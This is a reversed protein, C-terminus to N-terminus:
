VGLYAARVGDDALLEASGASMAIRGTELVYGRDAIELAENVNQEVLLVTTGAARIRTIAELVTEVLLPALGLSPEDLMLLRPRSMLARGIAVMQQEGGSLTGCLQDRREALLPFLELAEALAAEQEARARPTYAGLDLTEAVTLEPWLRRGEPVQALGLEVIRHPSLGDIRTDDFWVEGAAPRLLRSVANITTTKGAGNSGLLTVIEGAQVTLSVDAVALVDGYQVRLDRVELM